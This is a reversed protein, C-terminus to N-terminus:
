GSQMQGKRARTGTRTGGGECECAGQVAVVVGKRESDCAGKYRNKQRKKAVNEKM